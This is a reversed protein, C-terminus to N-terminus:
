LGLEKKVKSLYKKGIGIVVNFRLENWPDKVIWDMPDVRNLISNGEYDEPYHYSSNKWHRLVDPLEDASSLGTLYLLDDIRLAEANLLFSCPADASFWCGAESIRNLPFIVTGQRRMYALRDKVFIYAGHTQIREWWKGDLGTMSFHCPHETKEQGFATRIIDFCIRELNPEIRKRVWEKLEAEHSKCEAEAKSQIFKATNYRAFWRYDNMIQEESGFEDATMKKLLLAGDVTDRGLTFRVGSLSTCSSVESPDKLLLTEGYFGTSIRDKSALISSGDSLLFPTSGDGLLLGNLIDCPIQNKYREYIWNNRGSGAFRQYQPDNETSSPDLIPAVLPKYDHILCIATPNNEILESGIDPREIMESTYSLEACHYNEKYLKQDILAFMMVTWIIEDPEMTAISGIKIPKEQLPVLSNDGPHLYGKYDVSLDLLGYPFHNRFVRNTFDKEPRRSMYKSLPHAENPKDTLVTLNGGNKAVFAFFSSTALPDKILNISVGDPSQWACRILSNMNWFLHIDPLYALHDTQTDGQFFQHFALTEMARLSDRRLTGMDYRSHIMKNVDERDINMREIVSSVTGIFDALANVIEEASLMESLLRCDSIFSDFNQNELIDKISIGCSSFFDDRFNDILLLVTIGEPDLESAEEVSKRFEYDWPNRRSLEYIRLNNKSINQLKYWLEIIAKLDPKLREQRREPNEKFCNKDM